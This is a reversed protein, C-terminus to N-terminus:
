PKARIYIAGPLADSLKSTERVLVTPNVGRHYTFLVEKVTPLYIIDNIYDGNSTIVHKVFASTRSDYYHVPYTFGGNEKRVSLILKYYNKYNTAADFIGYRLLYIPRNTEYNTSTHDLPAPVKFVLIQSYGILFLLGAYHDYEISNAVGSMPYDVVNASSYYMPRSYFDIFSNDLKEITADDKVRYAYVYNSASAILASVGINYGSFFVGSPSISSMNGYGAGNHQTVYTVVGGVLKYTQIYSGDFTLYIDKGPVKALTRIGTNESNFETSSSNYVPQIGSSQVIAATAWNVSYIRYNESGAYGISRIVISTDGESFVMKTPVTPYNATQRLFTLTNNAEINYFRICLYSGANCYLALKTCDNNIAGVLFTSIGLTAYSVSFTVPVPDTARKIVFTVGNTPYCVGTRTENTELQRTDIMGDEVSGTVVGGIALPDTAAPYLFSDSSVTPYYFANRHGILEALEPYASKLVRVNETDSLLIYKGGYLFSPGGKSFMRVAGVPDYPAGDAELPGTASPNPLFDSYPFM